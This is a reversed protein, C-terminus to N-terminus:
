VMEGSAKVSRLASDLAELGQGFLDKDRLLPVRIWQSGPNDTDGHDRNWYFRDGPLVQVSRARCADIVADRNGGLHLWAVSRQFAHEERLDLTLGLLQELHKQNAAAVARARAAEGHPGDDELLAALMRINLESVNLLVDTCISGLDRALARTATLVGVKTDHLPITKGTDDVTTVDAGIDDAMEVLDLKLKPDFMRFSVDLVLLVDHRAAWEILTSAQDPKLIAGTPNNPAVVVLAGLELSDLFGTDCGPLVRAEPIPVLDLGSRTFLAPVSDFTPTLMGIPGQVSRLYKAIVDLAISASYTLYSSPVPYHQGTHRTLAERFWTEAEFYDSGTHALLDRTVESVRRVSDSSLSHRAHADALNITGAALAPWEHETLSYTSSDAKM